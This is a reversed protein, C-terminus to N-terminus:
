SAVEEADSPESQHVEYVGMRKKRKDPFAYWSQGGVWTLHIETIGKEPWREIAVELLDPENLPPDFVIRTTKMDRAM